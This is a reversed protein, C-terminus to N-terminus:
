GDHEGPCSSAARAGSFFAPQWPLAAEPLAAIEPTHCRCAKRACSPSSTGTGASSCSGTTASRSSGAVACASRSAGSWSPRRATKSSKSSSVGWSGPLTPSHRLVRKLRVAQFTTPTKDSSAAERARTRASTGCQPGGTGDEAWQLPGPSVRHRSSTDGRFLDLFQSPANLLPPQRTGPLPLHRLLQPPGRNRCRLAVGARAWLLAGM